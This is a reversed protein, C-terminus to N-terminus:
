IRNTKKGTAANCPTSSGNANPDQNESFSANAQNPTSGYSASSTSEAFCLYM